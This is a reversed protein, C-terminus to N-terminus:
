ADGHTEDVFTGTGRPEKKATEQTGNHAEQLTKLNAIVTAKKVEATLRQIAKTIQIVHPFSAEGCMLVKLNAVDVQMTINQRMKAFLRIIDSGTSEYRCSNNRSSRTERSISDIPLSGIRPLILRNVRSKTAVRHNETWAGEARALWETAVQLFTLREKLQERRREVSPDDGKRITKRHEHAAERAELLSVEPYLGLSIRKEVGNIRYKLRWKKSGNPAVELYMGGGDFYRKPKAEPKLAKIQKDTLPM